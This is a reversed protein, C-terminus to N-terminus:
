CSFTSISKMHTFHVQSAASCGCGAGAAHLWRGLGKPQHQQQRRVMCITWLLAVLVSLATSALLQYSNEEGIAQLTLGALSAQGLVTLIIILWQDV